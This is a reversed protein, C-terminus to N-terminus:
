LLVNKVDEIDNISPIAITVNKVARPLDDSLTREVVAMHSGEPWNEIGLKKSFETVKKVPLRPDFIAVETLANPNNTPLVVSYGVTEFENQTKIQLSNVIHKDHDRMAISATRFLNVPNIQEVASETM